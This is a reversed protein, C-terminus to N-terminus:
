MVFDGLIKSTSTLLNSIARLMEIKLFNGLQNQHSALIMVLTSFSQDQPFSCCTLLFNVINIKADETSFEKRPMSLYSSHMFIKVIHPIYSTIGAGELQRCYQQLSFGQLFFDAFSIFHKLRYDLYILLTVCM